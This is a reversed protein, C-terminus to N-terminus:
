DNEQEIYRMDNEKLIGVLVNYAKISAGDDTIKVTMKEDLSDLEASLEDATMKKNQFIYDNGSVTIEMYEATQTEPESISADAQVFSGEGDGMGGGFGKGGFAYILIVIVALALAIGIVLPIWFAGKCRRKM